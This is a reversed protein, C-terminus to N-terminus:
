PINSSFNTISVVSLSHSLLKIKFWTSTNYGFFTYNSEYGYQFPSDSPFLLISGSSLFFNEGTSWSTPSVQYSLYKYQTEVIYLIQNSIIIKFSLSTSKPLLSSFNISYIKSLNYGNGDPTYKLISLSNQYTQTGNSFLYTLFSYYFTKNPLIVLDPNYMVAEVDPSVNYHFYNIFEQKYILDSDRLLEEISCSNNENSYIARILGINSQFFVEFGNVLPSYGLVSSGSVLTSLPPNASCFKKPISWSSNDLAYTLYYNSSYYDGGKIKHEFVINTKNSGTVIVLPNYSNLNQTQLKYQVDVSNKSTINTNRSSNVLAPVKITNLPIISILIVICLTLSLIKVLHNSFVKGFLNLWFNM